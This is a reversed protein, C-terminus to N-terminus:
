GPAKEKPPEGFIDPRMRGPNFVGGSIGNIKKLHKLPVRGKNIRTWYYLSAITVGLEEALATITSGKEYRWWLFLADVVNEEKNM